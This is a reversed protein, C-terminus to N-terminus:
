TSELPSAADGIQVDLARSLHRKQANKRSLKDLLM